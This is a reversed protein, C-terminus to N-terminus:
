RHIHCLSYNAFEEVGVDLGLHYWLSLHSLFYLRQFKFISFNFGWIVVQGHEPPLRDNAFSFGLQYNHLKFAYKTEAAGAVAETGTREREHILMCAESM